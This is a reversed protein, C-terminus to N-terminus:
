YFMTHVTIFLTMSSLVLGLEFFINLTDPQDTNIHKYLRDCCYAIIPLLLASMPLVATYVLACLTISCLLLLYTKPSIRQLIHTM